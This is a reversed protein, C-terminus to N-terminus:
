ARWSVKEQIIGKQELVSQISDMDTRDPIGIYWIRKDDVSVQLAGKGVYDHNLNSNYKEKGFDSLPVLPQNTSGRWVKGRPLAQKFPEPIIADLRSLIPLYHKQLHTLSFGSYCLIDFPKELELRWEHLGDLLAGLAESQEFPEGGSITVGDLESNTMVRCSALLLDIPMLSESSAEWTDQSVCGPCNINCGQVWIGLRKGPGLVTVPFHVKNIHINM